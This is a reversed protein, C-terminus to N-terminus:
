SSSSDIMLVGTGAIKDAKLDQLAQNAQSLKYSCIQPVIPVSSALQLLARGDERTNATVSHLSKEFFLHTKYDLAPIQSMYIGAIALTGGKKLSELARPVLEGAPAFIIASDLLEPILEGPGGVWQAGLERALIQHQEGRTSVYVESGQARAIQMVIHASSGFGFIGLLGHPPLQAKRFARFGIIGSCLLPVAQTDSLSDAIAYAYDSPVVAETAFGGHEHYGTFIAAACLNERGTQCFTCSGCTKRLWAVGVRSGIQFGTVGPGLADVTGVFQHGPILPLKQPPLDGEIVHLDTRCIACCHVKLRVEGVGPIPSPLDTLKLPATDINAQTGLVMAKM